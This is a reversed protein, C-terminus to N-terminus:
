DFYLEPRPFGNFPSAMTVTYAGTNEFVLRDGVMVNAPLKADRTIIDLSDGTPGTLM